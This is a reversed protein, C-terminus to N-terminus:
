QSHMKMTHATVGFTRSVPGWFALWTTGWIVYRVVVGTVNWCIGTSLGWTLTETKTGKGFLTEKM